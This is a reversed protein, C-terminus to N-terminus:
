FEVRLTVIECPRAPVVLTNRDPRLEVEEREMLNCTWARKVPRDFALSAPACCNNRELLRLVLHRGDESRKLAELTFNPASCRVFSHTAPAAGPCVSLPANLELAARVTGAARWDGAHPYLAYTFFHRELDAVPDPHNSGKLLTLRMLRDQAEHGYKCDNLLSVGYDGQSMDMWLNAPVEFRAADYSTNRHNPREISGFAIDYTARRTNIEVPFAVKLLKQREKWDVLTEFLLVRRGALLSIRQELRSKRFSKTLRLSARLPGSEEVTLKAGGSIDLEHQRYSEIIDWADYPGPTDEFLQFRNGAAGAVLVERGQEDDRLSVLEGRLNFTATLFDNELVVSDRRRRAICSPGDCSVTRAGAETLPLVCYGVGPVEPIEVLVEETGDLTKIRQRRLPRGDSDALRARGLAGLPLRCVGSRPHLLSNFILLGRKRSGAGKALAALGRRRLLEGTALVQDYEKLLEGYVETIHTGPLSDHFQLTLLGKWGEDFRAQPYPAGGLWALASAAEAERYLFEARRNLKKLRGKNTYTGRHAELYLEDRMVPLEAKLAKAKIRDLAEEASSFKTKVLGPFDRYRFACELMEHDVGAGGDGWGFTYLSEGITEKDSYNSWHFDLHDPDVMGIFHAPPVVALVRSGDTGEWWFTNQRWPNTDNWCVMKNTLFYELGSRKLIQPMGWSLGFVDPQWCTRSQMGFERRWFQQGYWVQRVFSEGSILNCDPEVWFAGIPEWRGQRVRRKVERYVTPFWRKMDAYIKAQSQAFKWEPYREMLRLMTAHTRGVKRVFERYPWLFVVDLHSHGVLHLLGQGRFRDGAYIDRRAIEAAELLRERCLGPDADEGMPVRKIANWLREELFSRVKPDLNPVLLVKLAAYLDWYAHYEPLDLATLESLYLKKEVSEVGAYKYYAEVLLDYTEGGRARRTLLADSRFPDLGQYPRGNVSLLSDGAAFFRLYVPKGAFRQPITARCKMFATVDPGGWPDGLSLPRWDKDIYKYKGLAQHRARRILWGGLPVKHAYVRERITKIRLDMREQFNLAGRFKRKVGTRWREMVYRIEEETSM